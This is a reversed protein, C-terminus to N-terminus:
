QHHTVNLYESSPVKEVNLFYKTLAITVHYKQGQFTLQEQVALAFFQEGVRIIVVTGM